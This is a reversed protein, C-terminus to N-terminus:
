YNEKAVKDKPRSERNADKISVSKMDELESLNSNGINQFNIERLVDDTQGLNKGLKQSVYLFNEQAQVLLDAISPSPSRFLTPLEQSDKPPSKPKKNPPEIDDSALNIKEITKSQTAKNIILYFGEEKAPSETEKERKEIKLHENIELRNSQESTLSVPLSLKKKASGEKEDEEKSRKAIESRYTAVPDKNGERNHDDSSEDGFDKSDRNLERKDELMSMNFFKSKKGMSNLTIKMEVESSEEEEDKEAVKAEKEQTEASSEKLGLKNKEELEQEMLMQNALKAAKEPNKLDPVNMYVDISAANTWGSQLSRNDAFVSDSKQSDSLEKLHPPRSFHQLDREVQGLSQESKFDVEQKDKSNFKSVSPLESEKNSSLTDRQASTEDPSDFRNRNSVTKEGIVESIAQPASPRSQSSGLLQDPLLRSSTSLRNKIQMDFINMQQSGRSESARSARPLESSRVTSARPNLNEPRQSSLNLSLLDFIERCPDFEISDPDKTFFKKQISRSVKRNFAELNSIKGFNLPKFTSELRLLIMWNMRDNIELLGLIQDDSILDKESKWARMYDLIFQQSSNLNLNKCGNYFKDVLITNDSLTLTCNWGYIDGVFTFLEESIFVFELGAIERDDSIRERSEVLVERATENMRTKVFQYNFFNERTSKHLFSDGLLYLSYLEFWDKSVMMRRSDSRELLSFVLAKELVRRCVFQTDAKLCNGCETSYEFLKLPTSSASCNFKEELFDAVSAPLEQANILYDLVSKQAPRGSARYREIDTNFKRPHIAPIPEQQRRSFKKLSIDVRYVDEFSPKSNNHKCMYSDLSFGSTVGAFLNANIFHNPFSLFKVKNELAQKVKMLSLMNSQIPSRENIKGYVLFAIEGEAAVVQSFGSLVKQEARRVQVWGKKSRFYIVNELYQGARREIRVVVQLGYRFSIKPAELMKSKDFSFGSDLSKGMMLNNAFLSGRIQGQFKLNRVSDRSKNLIRNDKLGSTLISSRGSAESACLKASLMSNMSRSDSLGSVGSVGSASSVGSLDVDKAESFFSLDINEELTLPIRQALDGSAEFHLLLSAPFKSILRGRTGRRPLHCSPCALEAEGCGCHPGLAIQTYLLDVVSVGQMKQKFLSFVKKKEVIEPGLFKGYVKRNEKIKVEESRAPLNLDITFFPHPHSTTEDCNDCSLDSCTKGEFAAFVLSSEELNEESIEKLIDFDDNRQASEIDALCFLRKTKEQLLRLFREFYEKFNVQAYSALRPEKSAIITYLSSISKESSSKRNLFFFLKGLKKIVRSTVKKAMYANIHRENLYIQKLSKRFFQSSYLILISAQFNNIPFQLSCLLSLNLPQSPSVDASLEQTKRFFLRRFNFISSRHKDGADPGDAVEIGCEM